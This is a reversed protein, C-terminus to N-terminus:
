RTVADPRRCSSFCRSCQDRTDQAIALTRSPAHLTQMTETGDHAPDNLAVTRLAIQVIFEFGNTSIAAASRIHRQQEGHEAHVAHQRENDSLRRSIPMRRATPAVRAPITPRTIFWPIIMALM